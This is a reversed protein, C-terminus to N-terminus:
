RATRRHMTWAAGVTMVVLTFTVALVGATEGSGGTGSGTGTDPLTIGVRPTPQPPVATAGAVTSVPTPQAPVATATPTKRRTSGGSTTPTAVDVDVCVDESYVNFAEQEESVNPFAPSAVANVCNEDDAGTSAIATFTVHLDISEGAALVGDELGLWGVFGPDEIWLSEEIDASEYALAAPFVDDLDVDVLPVNGTNTVTILYTIDQGVYITGETLLTKEVSISCVQEQVALAEVQADLVQGCSDLQEQASAGGSGFLGVAGLAVTALAGTAVRSVKRGVLMAM